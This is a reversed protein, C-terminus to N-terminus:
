LQEKRILARRDYHQRMDARGSLYWTWTGDAKGAVCQGEVRADRNKTAMAIPGEILGTPSQCTHVEGDRGPFLAVGCVDLRIAPPPESHWAGEGRFSTKERVVADRTAGPCVFPRAAPEHATRPGSCCFLVVGLLGLAEVRMAVADYRNPPGTDHEDEDDITVSLRVNKLTRRRM